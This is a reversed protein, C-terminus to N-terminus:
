KAILDDNPVYQYFKNKSPNNQHFLFRYFPNKRQITNYLSNQSYDIRGNGNSTNQCATQNYQDLTILHELKRSTNRELANFKNNNVM